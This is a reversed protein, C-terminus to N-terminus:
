LCIYTIIQGTASIQRSDGHPVTHRPNYICAIKGLNARYILLVKEIVLLSIRSAKKAKKLSLPWWITGDAGTTTLFSGVNINVLAPIFWNLSIKRPSACGGCGRTASVWRHRRTDPLCLSKSSTPM